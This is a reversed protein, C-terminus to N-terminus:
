EKFCWDDHARRSLEKLAKLAESKNTVRVCKALSTLIKDAEKVKAREEFYSKCTNMWKEEIKRSNARESKLAKLADEFEEVIGGVPYVYTEGPRRLVPLSRRKDLELKLLVEGPVIRADDFEESM